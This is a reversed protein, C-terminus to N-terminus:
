GAPIPVFEMEAELARVGWATLGAIVLFYVLPLAVVAGAVSAIPRQRNCRAARRSATVFATVEGPLATGWRAILALAEALPLRPALLRGPKDRRSADRWRKAEQELRGRLVLDRTDAAVQDRARPWRTLLAEHALRLQAGDVM